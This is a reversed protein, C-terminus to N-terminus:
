ESLFTDITVRKGNIKLSIQGDEFTVYTIINDLRQMTEKHPHGYSNGEGASIVTMRPATRELFVASTSTRSGHHAVKLYHVPGLRALMERETGAGIDGTFLARFGAPMYEMELVLSNENVDRTRWTDGGSVSPSLCTIRLGDEVIENGAEMLYVPIGRQRAITVLATYNDDPIYAESLAATEPLIIQEIAVGCDEDALIELIGNVHDSDLHSVFVYDIRDITNAKLCPLIRYKGIQKEDSSGGDIMIVPTNKGKVMFCDGQGVSLAHLEFEASGRVSLVCVAGIFIVGIKIFISGSEKYGIRRNETKQTQKHRWYLLLGGFLLVYYAIAQGFAPKGTIWLNGLLGGCLKAIKEYATLILYSGYLIVGTINSIVQSACVAADPLVSLTQRGANMSGALLSAANGLFGAAIGMALLLGMPPIILLNVLIGYCSVQYFNWMVVPLTALQAALSVSIGQRIGRGLRKATRKGTWKIDYAINAKSKDQCNHLSWIKRRFMRRSFLKRDCFGPRCRLRLSLIEELAPCLLGIGIVAGFSLQFAADYLYYPNEMLILVASVSAASLLDYTRGICAAFVGLLFMFLARLTSTSLGTMVGYAIIIVSAILASARMPIGSKQLLKMLYLGVTAIHLGSLSLIHSIGANQYLDKVGAALNTKDGLVLAQMIGAEKEPLYNGYIQGTQDRIQYLKEQVVYYDSSIGVIKVDILSADIGQARYYSLADFQGDNQAKEFKKLKGEAKIRSGLKVKPNDKLSNSLYLIFGHCKQIDKETSGAEDPSLNGTISVDKLYIVARENKSEKREVTGYVTLATGDRLGQVGKLNTENYMDSGAGLDQAAGLGRGPPLLQTAIHLFLLFGLSLVCM